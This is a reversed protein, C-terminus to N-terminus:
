KATQHDPQFTLDDADLVWNFEIIIILQWLLVKMWLIWM